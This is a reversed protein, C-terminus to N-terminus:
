SLYRKVAKLSNKKERTFTQYVSKELNSADPNSFKTIDVLSNEIIACYVDYIPVRINKADKGKSGASKSNNLKSILVGAIAKETLQYVASQLDADITLYIDKGATADKHDKTEVVRSSSDIVLTESGKKGRLQEEFTSEIGSKGIQDAATYTNDGNEKMSALTDSSILGTYGIIHSFYTSDYYVRKAEESVDIGILSASNEKIAAVTNLSVDSSITIPEYKQYTNMMLAYRIAMIKLATADDYNQEYKEKADAENKNKETLPDFFHIANVATSTRIYRFCEEATMNKQEDTLEDVSKCFYIERKFRLQANKDVTFKFRGKKDITIPFDVTVKDGNKEILNICKLIMENMQKNSEIEGTDELTIAYSQENSALLKGNCDYIKGRSSKITKQKENKITAQEDYAEGQVIQLYFLRGVLISFLVVYVVILTFIRSRM